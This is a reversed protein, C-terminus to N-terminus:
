RLGMLFAIKVMSKIYEPDEESRDFIDKSRQDFEIEKLKAKLSNLVSSPINMQKGM